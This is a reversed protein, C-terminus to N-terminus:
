EPKVVVPEGEGTWTFGPPILHESDILTWGAALYRRHVRGRVRELKTLIKDRMAQVQESTYIIGCTCGPGGHGGSGSGGSRANLKPINIAEAVSVPPFAAEEGIPLTEPDFRATAAEILLGRLRERGIEIAVEWAAAFAPESRKRRYASEFSFGVAKAARWASGTVTM